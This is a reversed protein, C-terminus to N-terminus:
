KTVVCFLISHMINYKGNVVVMTNNTSGAEDFGTVTVYCTYQGGDGNLLPSFIVTRTYVLGANTQDTTTVRPSSSSSSGGTWSIMVLDSQVGNVITVTCTLTHNLGSVSTGVSQSIILQPQPVVCYMCVYAFTFVHSVALWTFLVVSSFKIYQSTFSLFPLIFEVGLGERKEKVEILCIFM